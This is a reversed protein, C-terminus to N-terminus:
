NPAAHGIFHLHKMHHTDKMANWFRGDATAFAGGQVEAMALYLCDYFSQGHKLALEMARPAMPTAPLLRVPARFFDEFAEAGETRSLVRARVLKTLASGVEAVVFDPAILRHRGLLRLAEEHHPLQVLWRVAISADVVM